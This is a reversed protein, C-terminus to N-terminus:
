ESVDFVAAASAINGIWRLPDIDTLYEVQFLSFQFSRLSGWMKRKKYRLYIRSRRPPPKLKCISLNNKNTIESIHTDWWPKITAYLTIPIRPLISGWVWGTWPGTSTSPTSKTSHPAYSDSREKKKWRRKANDTLQFYVGGFSTLWASGHAM